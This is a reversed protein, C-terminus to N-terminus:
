FYFNLGLGIRTIFESNTYEETRTRTETGLIYRYNYEGSIKSYLFRINSTLSLSENFFYEAGFGLNFHWPSNLDETYEEINDETIYPSNQPYLNEYKKEAFAFQKGVGALVYVSVSETFFDIFFYKLGLNIDLLTLGSRDLTGYDSNNFTDRYHEENRTETFSSNYGVDLTLRASQDVSYALQAEMNTENDAYGYTDPPYVPSTSRIVTYIRGSYYPIYLVGFSWKKYEQIQIVGNIQVDNKIEIKNNNPLSASNTPSIQTEEIKKLRNEIFNQIQNIDFTFGKGSLYIIGHEELSIKKVSQLIVSEEAKNLYILRAKTDNINTILCPYSRGDTLFLTDPYPNQALVAVSFFFVVLFKM